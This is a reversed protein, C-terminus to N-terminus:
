FHWYFSLNWSINYKELFTYLLLNVFHTHIIHGWPIFLFLLGKVEFIELITNGEEGACENLWTGINWLKLMEGSNRGKPWWLLAEFSSCNSWNEWFSCYNFAKQRTMAVNSLENDVVGKYWYFYPACYIRESITSLM